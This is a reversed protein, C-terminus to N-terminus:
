SKEAKFEPVLKSFDEIAESPFVVNHVDKKNTIFLVAAVIIAVITLVLRKLKIVHYSVM